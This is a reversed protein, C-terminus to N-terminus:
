KIKGQYAGDSTKLGLYHDGVPRIAFFCGQGDSKVVIARALKGM